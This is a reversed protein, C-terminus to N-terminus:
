EDASGLSLAQCLEKTSARNHRVPGGAKLVAVDRGCRPCTMRPAPPRASQGLAWRTFDMIGVRRLVPDLIQGGACVGDIWGIYGVPVGDRLARLFATEVQTGDATMVVRSHTIRPTPADGSAALREYLWRLDAPVIPDDPGVEHLPVLPISVPIRRAVRAGEVEAPKVYSYRVDIDGLGRGSRRM